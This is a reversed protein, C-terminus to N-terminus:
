HNLTEIPKPMATSKTQTNVTGPTVLSKYAYGCIKTPGYIEMQKCIAKIKCYIEMQTNIAKPIATSKELSKHPWKEKKKKEIYTTM